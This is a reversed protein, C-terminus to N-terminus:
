RCKLEMTKKANLCIMEQKNISTIFNSSLLWLWLPLRKYDKDYAQFGKSLRQSILFMWRNDTSRKKFRVNEFGCTHLLQRMGMTSFITYHRPAEFGRWNHAFLRFGRSQINPTTIFLQGGPKLLRGVSAMISVPDSFHEIVHNLTIADFVESKGDFIEISGVYVQLDKKRAAEVAASDFDVGIAEWGADRAKVLFDGNGCGIDLLTQGEVPKPLWRFRIDLKERQWPLLKMIMYGVKIEPKYDTGFRLNVYGNAVGRRFKSIVNLFEPDTVLPSSEHTYYSKYALHVSEQTPRPNLYACFCEKCQFYAWKGPAVNFINDIIGELLIDNDNTGCVPCCSVSELGSPRWPTNWPQHSVTDNTM